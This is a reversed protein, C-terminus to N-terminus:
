VDSEDPDEFWMAMGPDLLAHSLFLLHGRSRFGTDARWRDRLRTVARRLPQPVAPVVFTSPQPDLM